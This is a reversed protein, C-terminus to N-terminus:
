FNGTRIAPVPFGDLMAVLNFPLNVMIDWLVVADARGLGGFGNPTGAAM